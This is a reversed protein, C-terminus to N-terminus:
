SKQKKAPPEEVEDDVDELESEGCELGMAEAAALAEAEEEMMQKYEAGTMEQPMNARDEETMSQLSDAYKKHASVFIEAVKSAGMTEILNDVDEIDASDSMDCPVMVADDAIDDANLLQTVDEKSVETKDAVAKSIKEILPKSVWLLTEEDAGLEENDLEEEEPGPAM